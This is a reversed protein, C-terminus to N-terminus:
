CGALGSVRTNQTATRARARGGFWRQQPMGRAASVLFQLFEVLAGGRQCALQSNGGMADGLNQVSAAVDGGVCRQAQRVDEAGAGFEPDIQLAEVIQADGPLLRSFGDLGKGGWVGSRRGRTSGAPIRTGSKPDRTKVLMSVGVGLRSNVM